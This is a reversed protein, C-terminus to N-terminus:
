LRGLVYIRVAGRPFATATFSAVVYHIGRYSVPGRVPLEPPGPFSGALQRSGARVLIPAGTLAHALGSYGLASQVSFLARGVIAGAADHIAQALPALAPIAPGAQAIVRGGASVWLRAFGGGAVMGRVIKAAGPYDRAALAQPLAQDLSLTSVAPMVPPGSLAEGYARRAVDALVDARIQACTSRALAAPPSPFLLSIHLTGSPFRGATFSAVLYHRGAIAVPGHAPLQTDGLAIDSMLTRGGYRIVVGAGVLREALKRYGADDQISMVFSGVVRGGLRLTGRVPALVFPGGLDDIVVAGRLVRLRVIHEHNFVLARVAVDVAGVDDAAVAAALAQNSSISQRVRGVEGGTSEGVNIRRALGAAISLYTRDSAAGCNAAASGAPAGIVLLAAIVAIAAGALLSTATRAPDPM